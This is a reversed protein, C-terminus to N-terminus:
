LVGYQRRLRHRVWEACSNIVFTFLFLVLASLFLVRYHTSAVEAEPAEIAINAALTRMGEFINADMIPTNGTAMLVIMTEGIARGLGLMLASFIGPSATPLVVGVLTQWPTAGLALSGESLNLPVAFIADEALSYISPIVAMGMAIGVIISNRQDYHLGWEDRVWQRADGGFWLAELWENAAFCGWVLVALLPLLLAAHWGPPLQLRGTAPLRSLLWAFMLTLLPTALLVTFVAALRDEILPALWLGALFGLIVTPLAEMLEVLPKIKRRLAPAMFYATYIAGCVAIPVAVLMTYLAAKLTGFVLPTLSYKPEFDGSAASSQWIFEPQEHNEYWVKDWLVSWSIEPHANNMARSRLVGNQDILAMGRGGPALAAAVPRFGPATQGAWVQRRATAHYLQLAGDSGIALFGKRRPEAALVVVTDDRTEFNRVPRLRFQDGERVMFFQVLQSRDSSAVLSQGGALMVSASVAGQEFLRGSDALGLQAGQALPSLDFVQYQGLEDLRYLWRQDGGLYLARSAGSLALQQTGRLQLSVQESLFNQRKAYYAVSLTNNAVAALVVARDSDAATFQQVSGAPLPLKLTAQPYLSQWQLGTGGMSEVHWDYRSLKVEGDSHLLALQRLGLPAIALQTESDVLADGAAEGTALDMAVLQGTANLALATAHQEDLALYASQELGTNWAAAPKVQASRFLPLVQLLLYVFILLVAFLVAVGGARILLTATQDQLRRWRASAQDPLQDSAM